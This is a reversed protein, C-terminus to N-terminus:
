FVMVNKCTKVSKSLDTLTTVTVGEVMYEKKVGGADICTACANIKIGLDMLDTLKRALNLEKLGEPPHQDKLAIYAAADILFIEVEMDIGVLGAAIRLANWSKMSGPGENLILVAKEM